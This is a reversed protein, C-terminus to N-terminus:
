LDDMGRQAMAHLQEGFGRMELWDRTAGTVVVPARQLGAVNASSTLQM